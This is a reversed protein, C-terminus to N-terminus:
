EKSPGDEELEQDRESKRIEILLQKNAELTRRIREDATIEEDSSKNESKDM